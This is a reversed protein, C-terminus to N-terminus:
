QSFFVFYDMGNMGLNNTELVRRNTVIADGVVSIKWMSWRGYGNKNNMKKIGAAM